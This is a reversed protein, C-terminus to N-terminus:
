KEAKKIAQYLEKVASWGLDSTLFSSTLQNSIRVKFFKDGLDALYAVSYYPILRNTIQFLARKARTTSDLMVEDEKLIEFNTFEGKEKMYKLADIFASYHKDLTHDLSSKPYIFADLFADKKKIDAYRLAIGLKKDEYIKQSQLTYSGIQRPAQIKDIIISTKTLVPKPQSKHSCGGFIILFLVLLSLFYKM